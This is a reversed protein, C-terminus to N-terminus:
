ADRTGKGILTKLERIAAPKLVFLLTYTLYILGFIVINAIVTGYGGPLPLWGSAYHSGAWAIVGGIVAPLFARGFLRGG